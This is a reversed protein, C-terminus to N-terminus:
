TIKAEKKLEEILRRALKSPQYHNNEWRSITTVTVGLFMALEEQTYGLGQRLKKIENNDNDNHKM